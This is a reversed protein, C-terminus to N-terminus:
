CCKPGCACQPASVAGLDVKQNRSALEQELEAPEPYRGKAVLEGDIFTAPLAANGESRLLEGVGAHDVFAQPDNSLSFRAVELGAKELARLTNQLQV